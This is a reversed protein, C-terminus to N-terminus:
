SDKSGRGPVIKAAASKQNRTPLAGCAQAVQALSVARHPPAHLAIAISSYIGDDLLDPPTTSFLHGFECGGRAADNEHVMIIEDDGTSRSWRVLEALAEGEAGLWTQTNLLLLLRQKQPRAGGGGRSGGGSGGASSRCHLGTSCHLAVDLNEVARRELQHISEVATTTSTVLNDLIGGVSGRTHQKSCRSKRSKRSSMSGRRDGFVDLLSAEPQDPDDRVLTIGTM